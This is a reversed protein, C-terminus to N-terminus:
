SQYQRDEREHEPRYAERVTNATDDTLDAGDLATEGDIGVIQDVLVRVGLEATEIDDGHLDSMERALDKISVSM